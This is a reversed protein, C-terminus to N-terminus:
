CNLTVGLPRLFVHCKYVTTTVNKSFLNRACALLRKKLQDDAYFRMPAVYVDRLEAAVLHQMAYVHEKDDNAVRWLGTRTSMLKRHKGQRSLRAVLVYDGVTFRPLRAAIGCATGSLGLWRQM